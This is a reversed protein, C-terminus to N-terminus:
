VYMANMMRMKKSNNDADTRLSEEAKYLIM